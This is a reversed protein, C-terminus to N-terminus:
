IEICTLSESAGGDEQVREKFDIIILKDAYSSGGGTLTAGQGWWSSFNIVGWNISNAM